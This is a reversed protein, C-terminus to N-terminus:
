YGVSVPDSVVVPIEGVPRRRKPPRPKPIGVRQTQVHEGGAALYTLLGVFSGVVAGLGLRKMRNPEDRLLIDTLLLSGVTPVFISAALTGRNVTVQRQYQRGCGCDFTDTGDEIQYHLGCDCTFGQMM